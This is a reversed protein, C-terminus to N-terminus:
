STYLHLIESENVNQTSICALLHKINKTDHTNLALNYRTVLWPLAKEISRSSILIYYWNSDDLAVSLQRQTVFATTTNIAKWHWPHHFCVQPSLNLWIMMTAVGLGQAGKEICQMRTM